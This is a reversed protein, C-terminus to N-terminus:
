KEKVVSKESNAFPFVAYTPLFECLIGLHYAAPAFPEVAWRFGMSRTCGLELIICLPSRDMHVRKWSDLRAM